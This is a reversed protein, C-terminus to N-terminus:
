VLSELYPQMVKAVRDITAYRHLDDMTVKRQQWADKLAEVAVDVGIKSRYKFCDAITKAPSTVRVNVGDVQHTEVGEVLAEGSARVIRIPPYQITPKWASKGVMLWVEFPNQTTLEHFSLASLLCITASPYRRAAEQLSAHRSPSYEPHAYFGRGLRTLDGRDAARKLYVWAIGHDKAEAARIVGREYALKLLKEAPKLPPQSVM